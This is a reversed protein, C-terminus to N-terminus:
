AAGAESLRSGLARVVDDQDELDLPHSDALLNGLSERRTTLKGARAQLMEARGSLDRDRRIAAAVRKRAEALEPEPDERTLLPSDALL